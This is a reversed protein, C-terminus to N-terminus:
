RKPEQKQQYLYIGIPNLMGNGYIKIYTDTVLPVNNEDIMEMCKMLTESNGRLGSRSITHIEEAIEDPTLEKATTSSDTQTCSFLGCALCLLVIIIRNKM